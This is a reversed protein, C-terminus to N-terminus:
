SPAVFENRGFFEIYQTLCFTFPLSQQTAATDVACVDIRCESSPTANYLAAFSDDIAVTQKTVGMVEAVTHYMSLKHTETGATAITYVARHAGMVQEMSTPAPTSNPCARLAVVTGTTGGPQSFIIEFKFSHVIYGFYQGSSNGAYFSFGTPGGAALSGFPDKCDNPYIPSVSFAGAAASSLTGRGFKRLKVFIRDPGGIPGPVVAQTPRGKARSGYFRSGGVPGYGFGKGTGKGGKYSGKARKPASGKVSGNSSLKRKTGRNFGYM